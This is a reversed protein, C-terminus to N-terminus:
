CIIHEWVFKEIHRGTVSALPKAEVWKTFYDIAIVLFKVGGPAVPLPGVIDIGWQCFPWASTVFTMDQKPLRPVKSHIQCAECKQIIGMADRHMSPWYYGFKMIKSVVSRPGAHM